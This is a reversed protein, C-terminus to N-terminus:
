RERTGARDNGGRNSDVHAAGGGRCRHGGGGGRGTAAADRSRSDAITGDATTGGSPGIASRLRPFCYGTRRRRLVYLGLLVLGAVLVVLGGEVSLNAALPPDISSEGVVRLDQTCISTRGLADTVRVEVTYNGAPSPDFTAAIPGPAVLSGSSTEGDSLQIQYTYPPLGGAVDAGVAFPTAPDRGASTVNVSLPPAITVVTMASDVTGLTDVVTLNLYATGPASFLLNWRYVGDSPFIGVPGPSAAVTVSSSLSWRFPPAGNEIVVLAGLPWGVEGISGNTALAISGDPVVETTFEATGSFDGLTDVVQARVWARGPTPFTVVESYVGDHPLGVSGNPGGSSANWTAAFPPVGGVVDLFFPAPVGADFQSLPSSVYVTPPPVISVTVTATGQAGGPNTVVLTVKLNGPNDVDLEWTPTDESGGQSDTWQYRYGDVAGPVNATLEFPLDVDAPDASSSISVPFTSVGAVDTVILGAPLLALIAALSAGLICAVEGGVSWSWRRGAARRKRPLHGGSTPGPRPYKGRFGGIFPPPHNLEPSPWRSTTM